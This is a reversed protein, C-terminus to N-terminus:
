KRKTLFCCIAYAIYSSYIFRYKIRLLLSYESFYMIDRYCEAYVNYQDKLTMFYHCFMAKTMFKIRSITVHYKKYGNPLSYIYIQLNDINKTVCDWEERGRAKKKMLSNSNTLNYHYLIDPIFCVKTSAFYVYTMLYLDEAYNCPVIKHMNTTVLIRKILKNWLNIMVVYYPSAVIDKGQQLGEYRIMSEQTYDTFEKFYRCAVVDAGMEIAKSYLVHFMNLELWDDSDCFALYDGKAVSVGIKRTESPGCNVENHIITIQTKREPYCSLTEQLILMSTDLSCDDVFIFEIGDKMTQEMLSRACREIYQEVNYIPIIVSVSIHNDSELQEM